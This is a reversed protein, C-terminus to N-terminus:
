IFKAKLWQALEQDERRIELALSGQGPATKFMLRESIREALGLRILGAAAVVIAEFEGQDLRKVREDVNGRLDIIQLDPRKSLLQAKRRQSSTGVKAGKPLEALKLDNRSVLVDDTDISRTVAAISLKQDLKEPLDKASHIALDIQKKIM